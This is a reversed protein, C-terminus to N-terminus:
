RRNKARKEIDKPGKHWLSQLILLDSQGISGDNDLDGMVATATPTIRSTIVKTPTSSPTSTQTMTPSPTSRLTSTVTPTVTPTFSPIRTPTMTPSTTPSVTSTFKPTVTLRPSATPTATATPSLTVAPTRTPEDGLREDAGIDCVKGSRAEGDYDKTPISSDADPGIGQSLCPSGQQLHYDSDGVFMPDTCQSRVAIGTWCAPVICYQLGLTTVSSTTTILPTNDWLICNKCSPSSASMLFDGGSSTASNGALTCNIFSPSSNLCYVGGGCLNANNKTIFCNTFVPASNKICYIGGGFSLSSNGQILCSEVLPSSNDWCCFGGGTGGSANNGTICCNLISPSCSMTCIAAGNVGHNATLTCNSLVSDYAKEFFIGGGYVDTQNPYKGRTIQVGDLKSHAAAKVVRRSNEGDLITPYNTLDRRWGATYPDFGGYVDVYPKMVFATSEVGTYVGNAILIAYRNTSSANTIQALAFHLTKWPGTSSGRGSATDDGMELSVYRVKDRTYARIIEATTQSQAAGVVLMQLVGWLVMTGTLAKLTM